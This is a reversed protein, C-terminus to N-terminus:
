WVLEQWGTSVQTGNPFTTLKALATALRLFILEACEAEDDIRDDQSVRPIHPCVPLVLLRVTLDEVLSM